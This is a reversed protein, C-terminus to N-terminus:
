GFFVFLRIIIVLIAATAMAMVTSKFRVTLSFLWYVLAYLGISWVLTEWWVLGNLLGGLDWLVVLSAAIIVIPRAQWLRVLIYAGLVAVAVAAISGAVNFAGTCVSATALDHCAVPEVVYRRLIITLVWWTLGLVAGVYLTSLQAWWPRVVDPQNQVVKAM